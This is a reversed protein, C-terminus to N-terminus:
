GNLGEIATLGSAQTATDDFIVTVTWRITITRDPTLVASLSVLDRVGEVGLIVRRYAALARDTAGQRAGFIAEDASVNVREFYPIGLDLDTFWEGKHMQVAFKIAQLVGDTGSTFEFTGSSLDIDYGGGLRIDRKATSLMVWGKPSLHRYAM